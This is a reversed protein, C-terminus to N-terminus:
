SDVWGPRPHLILGHRQPGQVLTSDASLGAEDHSEVVVVVVAFSIPVVSCSRCSGM